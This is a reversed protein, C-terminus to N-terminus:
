GVGRELFDKLEILGTGEISSISFIREAGAQKLEFEAQEIDEVTSLDIKTIVGIVPVSFLMAFTPSYVQGTLNAPLVLCIISADTSLNQLSNYFRRHQIFEGPTDIIRGEYEVAQTKSYELPQGDLAQKLTTKGAGVPGVLMIKDM